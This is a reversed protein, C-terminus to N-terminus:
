RKTLGLEELMSPSVKVRRIADKQWLDWIMCPLVLPDHGACTRKGVVGGGFAAAYHNRLPHPECSSAGGRSEELDFVDQGCLSCCTAKPKVGMIIYFLICNSVYYVCVRCSWIHTAGDTMWSFPSVIHFLGDEKGISSCWIRGINEWAPSTFFCWSFVHLHDLMITWCTQSDPLVSPHPRFPTNWTMPILM